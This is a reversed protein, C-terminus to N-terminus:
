VGKYMDYNPAGGVWDPEEAEEVPKTGLTDSTKVPALNDTGPYQKKRITVKSM